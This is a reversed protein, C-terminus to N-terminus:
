CDRSDLEVASKALIDVAAEEVPSMINDWRIDCTRTAHSNLSGSKHSGVHVRLM